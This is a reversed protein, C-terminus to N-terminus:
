LGVETVRSRVRSTNVSKQLVVKLVRRKYDSELVQGGVAIWDEPGEALTQCTCKGGTMGRVKRTESNLGKSPLCRRMHPDM